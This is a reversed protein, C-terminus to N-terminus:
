FLTPFRARTEVDVDHKERFALLMHAPPMLLMHSCSGMLRIQTITCKRTIIYVPHRLFLTLPLKLLRYALLVPALSKQFHGLAVSSDTTNAATTIRRVSCYLEFYHLSVPVRKYTVM